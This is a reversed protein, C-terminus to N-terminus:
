NNRVREVSYFRNFRRLASDLDADPGTELVMDLDAYNAGFQRIFRDVAGASSRVGRQALANFLKAPLRDIQFQLMPGFLLLPWHCPRPLHSAVLLRHGARLLKAIQWVDRMVLLEDVVVLCPTDPVKEHWTLPRGQEIRVVPRDRCDPHQALLHQIYSSKGAGSCGIFVVLRTNALRRNALQLYDDFPRTM